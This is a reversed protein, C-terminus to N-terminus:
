ISVRATYLHLLCDYAKFHVNITVIYNIMLLIEPVRKERNKRPRKCYTLWLNLCAIEKNHTSKCCNSLGAARRQVCDGEYRYPLLGGQWSPDWLGQRGRARDKCTNDLGQQHSSRLPPLPVTTFLQMNVNSAANMTSLVLHEANCLGIELRKRHRATARSLSAAHLLNASLIAQKSLLCHFVHHCTLLDRTQFRGSTLLTLQQALGYM